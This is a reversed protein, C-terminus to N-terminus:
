RPRVTAATRSKRAPINPSWSAAAADTLAAMTGTGPGPATVKTVGFAGTAGVSGVGVVESPEETVTLRSPRVPLGLEESVTMM